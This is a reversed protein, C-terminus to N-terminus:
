AKELVKCTCPKGDLTKGNCKHKLESNEKIEEFKIHDQLEHGCKCIFSTPNSESM